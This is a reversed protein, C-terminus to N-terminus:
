SDAESAEGEQLLVQPLFLPKRKVLAHHADTAIEVADRIRRAAADEIDVDEGVLDAQELVATEDAGMNGKFAAVLRADIGCM